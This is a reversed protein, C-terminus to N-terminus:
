DGVRNNLYYQMIKNAVPIAVLSGTSERSTGQDEIVVAIAIKPNDYPAFATFWALTKDVGKDKYQATGTKGAGDIAKLKGYGYINSEVVNNRMYSRVKAMNEANVGKTLTEQNLAYTVEGKPSTINKIIQPKIVSGGNAATAAVLAMQMPTATVEGQGIGSLAKLGDQSSSHTPFVSRVINLGKIKIPSNFGFEEATNKLQENSLDRALSGFVVNSSLRFGEKIDIKGYVNGEYNRMSRGDKFTIKGDDNFIKQEIGPINDLASLATVIKFTSGPAYTSQTARNILPASKSFAKDSNVKKMVEDLKNPNYSPLSVMSLIEGTKPNLAVVSGKYYNGTNPDVMAEFAVKQLEYDLTTTINNGAKKEEQASPDFIKRILDQNIAETITYDKSLESDMSKEIGTLSYNNSVYGLINGFYVGGHYTRVYKDNVLTNDTLVKGNRDFITGRIVKERAEANRRNNADTKLSPAQTIQFYTLYGMLLLLLSLMFLSVHKIKKNVQPKFERFNQLQKEEMSLEESPAENYVVEERHDNTVNINKKNFLDKFAM